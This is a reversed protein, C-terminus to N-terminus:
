GVYGESLRKDLEEQTFTNTVSRYEAIMQYPCWDEKGTPETSTNKYILRKEPDISPNIVSPSVSMTPEHMISM